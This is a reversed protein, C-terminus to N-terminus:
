LNALYDDIVKKKFQVNPIDGSTELNILLGILLERRYDVNQIILQEEKYLKVIHQAKKYVEETIMIHKKLECSMICPANHKM